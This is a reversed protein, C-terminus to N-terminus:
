KFRQNTLFWCINEPQTNLRAPVSHLGGFWKRLVDSNWFLSTKRFWITIFFVWGLLIGLISLWIKMNSMWNVSCSLYWRQPNWSRAHQHAIWNIWAPSTCYLETSAMEQRQASYNRRNGWLYTPLNLNLIYSWCSRMPEKAPKALLTSCNKRMTKAGSWKKGQPHLHCKRRQILKGSKRGTIQGVPFQCLRSHRCFTNRWLRARSVTPIWDLYAIKIFSLNIQTQITIFPGCTITQRWWVIWVLPSWVSRAFTQGRGNNWMIGNYAATVPPSRTRFIWTHDLTQCILICRYNAWSHWLIQIHKRLNSKASKRPVHWNLKMGTPAYTSVSM